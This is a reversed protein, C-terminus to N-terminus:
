SAPAEEAVTCIPRGDPTRLPLLTTEVPGVHRYVFCGSAPDLKTASLNQYPAALAVVNEPAQSLGNAAGNGGTAGMDDCAALLALAAVPMWVTKKM